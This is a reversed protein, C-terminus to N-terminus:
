SSCFYSNTKYSIYNAADLKERAQNIDDKIADILSELSNFNKEQRLYGLIVIRIEKGYFDSDFEHLVHVEMSKTKNKYFPNWGISMVMKYVEGGDVSAFGYYVGTDLDDPLQNVAEMPLNATPCGLEKSGRGFGQVVEGKAFHPLPM